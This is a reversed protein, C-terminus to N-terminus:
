HFDTLDSYCGVQFHTFSPHLSSQTIKDFFPRAPPKHLSRHKCSPTQKVVTVARATFPLLEGDLSRTLEWELTQRFFFKAM